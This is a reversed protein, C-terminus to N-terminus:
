EHILALGHHDEIISMVTSRYPRFLNALDEPDMSTAYKTSGVLDCYLVVLPRRESDNSQAPLDPTVAEVPTQRLQASIANLIKKRDGLPIAQEKLDDENISSLSDLDIRHQQFLAEYEEIGHLALWTEIDSM